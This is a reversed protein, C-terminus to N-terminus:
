NGYISLIYSSFTLDVMENTGLYTGSVCMFVMNSNIVESTVRPKLKAFFYWEFNSESSKFSSPQM